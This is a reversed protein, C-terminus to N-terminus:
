LLGKSNMWLAVDRVVFGPDITRIKRLTERGQESKAPYLDHEDMEAFLVRKAAKDGRMARDFLRGLVTKLKVGNAM